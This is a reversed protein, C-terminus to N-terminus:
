QRKEIQIIQKSYTGDHLKERRIIEYKIPTAISLLDLVQYLPEDVLTVTIPYNKVDDDVVFDVNYISGLKSVIESIPDDEFILKGERWSTYKNTNVSTIQIDGNEGNFKFHQGPSMTGIRQSEGEIRDSILEVKGNVLTTEVISNQPNTLVNFETGLAVVDVQSTKVIFPKEPNHTVDFYGEGTLVVERTDGNFIMPYKLKSGHNLYVISSDPLQFITRSGPPAIVELSDIYHYSNDALIVEEQPRSNLLLFLTPLFLIAAAKTLWSTLLKITPKKVTNKDKENISLQIKDFIRDLKEDNVIEDKGEYEEWIKQMIEKGETDLSNTKVRHIIKELEEKSCKNNFYKILIEKNM